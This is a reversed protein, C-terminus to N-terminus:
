KVVRSKHTTFFLTRILRATTGPQYGKLNIRIQLINEAM